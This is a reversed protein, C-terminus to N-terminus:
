SESSPTHRGSMGRRELAEDLVAAFNAPDHAFRGLFLGDVAPLSGLLGPGASGGYIIPSSDFEDRLGTVVANIHGADAPEGAGIAWVPEYAILIKDRRETRSGLASRVQAACYRIAEAAGRPEREGVCLLPSIGASLAADVKLAVVADTEGVHARREAHGIEALGIGLEALMGAPVEGTLPGSAQAVSQAGVRVGLGALREVAAPLVPFSPIVFPVVGAERLAPRARVADAVGDLWRLSQAYGLYAKTSVGVYTNM